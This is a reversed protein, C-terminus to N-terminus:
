TDPVARGKSVCSCTPDLGQKGPVSSRFSLSFRFTTNFQPVHSLLSIQNPPTFPHLSGKRPHPPGLSPSTRRQGSHRMRTPKLVSLLLAPRLWQQLCQARLSSAPSLSGPPLPSHGCAGPAWLRGQEVRLVRSGRRTPGRHLSIGRKRRFNAWHESCSM